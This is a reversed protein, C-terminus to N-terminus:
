CLPLYYAYFRGNVFCFGIFVHFVDVDGFFVLIESYLNGGLWFYRRHRPVKDSRFHVQLPVQAGSWYVTYAARLHTTALLHYPTDSLTVAETKSTQNGVKRCVSLYVDLHLFLLFLFFAINQIISHCWKMGLEPTAM